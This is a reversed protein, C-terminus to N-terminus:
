LGNIDYLVQNELTKESIISSLFFVIRYHSTVKYYTVVYLSLKFDSFYNHIKYVQFIDINKLHVLYM